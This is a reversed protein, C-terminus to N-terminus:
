FPARDDWVPAMLVLVHVRTTPPTAPAANAIKPADISIVPRAGCAVARAKRLM